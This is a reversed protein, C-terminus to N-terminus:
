DRAVARDMGRRRSSRGSSAGGGSDAALPHKRQAPGPPHFEAMAGAQRAPGPDRPALLPATARPIAGFKEEHSLRNARYTIGICFEGKKPTKGDQLSVM